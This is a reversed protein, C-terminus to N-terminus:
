TTPITTRESVIKQNGFTSFIGFWIASGNSVKLITRRRRARESRLRDTEAEGRDARAYVGKEANEPEKRNELREIRSACFDGTLDIRRFLPHLLHSAVHSVRFGARDM